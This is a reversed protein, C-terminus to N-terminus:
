KGLSRVAEALSIGFLAGAESMDQQALRYAEIVSGRIPNMLDVQYNLRAFMHEGPFPLEKKRDVLSLDLISVFAELARRAQQRYHAKTEYEPRDEWRKRAGSDDSAVSTGMKFAAEEVAKLVLERVGNGMGIEDVGDESM